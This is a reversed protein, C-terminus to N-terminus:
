NRELNTENQQLNYTDVVVNSLRRKNTEFYIKKLKIGNKKIKKPFRFHDFAGFESILSYKILYVICIWKCTM